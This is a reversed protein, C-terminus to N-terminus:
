HCLNLNVFINDRHISQLCTHSLPPVADTMRLKPERGVIHTHPFLRQSVNLLLSTTASALKKIDVSHPHANLSLVENHSIKTLCRTCKGLVFYLIDHPPSLTTLNLYHCNVQSNQLVTKKKPWFDNFYFVSAQNWPKQFTNQQPSIATLKWTLHPQLNNHLSSSGKFREYEIHLYNM